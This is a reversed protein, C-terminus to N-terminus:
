TEVAAGGSRSARGCAREDVDIVRDTGFPIALLFEFIRIMSPASPYQHIVPLTRVIKSSFVGAAAGGVDAPNIRARL